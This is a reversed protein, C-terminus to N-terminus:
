NTQTIGIPNGVLNKSLHTRVTKESASLSLNKIVKATLARTSLAPNKEKIKNAEVLWKQKENDSYKVTALAGKVSFLRLQTKRKEADDALPKMVGCLMELNIAWAKLLLEKIETLAAGLKDARDSRELRYLLYNVHARQRSTKNADFGCEKEVEHIQSSLIYLRRMLVYNPNSFDIKAMQNPQNALEDLLTFVHEQEALDEFILYVM